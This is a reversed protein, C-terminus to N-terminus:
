LAKTTTPRPTPVLTPCKKQEVPQPLQKKTKKEAGVNDNETNAGVNPMVVIIVPTRAENIRSQSFAAGVAANVAASVAAQDNDHKETNITDKEAAVKDNNKAHTVEEDSGKVRWPHIVARWPPTDAM